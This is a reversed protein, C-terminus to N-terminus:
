TNKGGGVLLILLPFMSAIISDRVKNTLDLLLPKIDEVAKVNNLSSTEVGATRSELENLAKM